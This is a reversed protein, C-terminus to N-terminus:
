SGGQAFAHPCGSFWASLWMKLIHNDTPCGSKWGKNRVMYVWQLSFTFNFQWTSVPTPTKGDEDQFTLGLQIIKLLNVNCRVIQYQYDTTSRFEGIPRAVVGPFETDQFLVICVRTKHGKLTVLM